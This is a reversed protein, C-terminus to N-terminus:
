RDPGLTFLNLGFLLCFICFYAVFICYAEFWCASARCKISNKYPQQFILSIKLLKKPIMFIELFESCLHAVLWHKDCIYIFLVALLIPFITWASSKDINSGNRLVIFSSVEFIESSMEFIEAAFIELFKSLKMNKSLRPSFKMM